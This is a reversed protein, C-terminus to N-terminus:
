VSLGNIRCKERSLTSKNQDIDMFDHIQPIIFNGRPVVKAVNEYRAHSISGSQIGSSWIEGSNCSKWALNSIIISCCLYWGANSTTM